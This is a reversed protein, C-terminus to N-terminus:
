EDRLAEMPDVSAARRAPLWCAILAVAFLVAPGLLLSVPDLPTIDFILHRLFGSTVLYGALGLVIGILVLRLGQNLVLASVDRATAGLAARIGFERARQAANFALVGYIGLSALLLAMGGFLGILRMPVRQRQLTGNIRGTLTQIDFLPQESDVGLVTQRVARILGGPPLTTRVVLTIGEVPRQNYPFYLTEKSTNDDLGYQKVPAVVGVITRTNRMREDRFIQRGIPDVDRFYRDALVRDIIVVPEADANDQPAFARGRLLPIGMATFYNESVSRMLGHPPPEGEPLERGAIRYTGSPSTYGFPVADTFGASAVGPLANLEALVNDAFTRRQEDSPYKAPPLTLRATLVSDRDFGPDQDQLRAFSHYFLGATTLLMVALAVEAVVLGHRLQVQSRSASARANADRLADAADVRAGNWAPLLGFVLAAIGVSGLTFCFVPLDLTVTAGRPLSTVGLLDVATL